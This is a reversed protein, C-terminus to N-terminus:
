SIRGSGFHANTNPREADREESRCRAGERPPVAYFLSYVTPRLRAARSLAPQWSPELSLLTPTYPLPLLRVPLPTSLPCQLLYYAVLLLLFSLVVMLQRLLASAPVFCILHVDFLM